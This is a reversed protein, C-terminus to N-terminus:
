KELLGITDAKCELLNQMADEEENRKQYEMIHWSFLGMLPPQLNIATNNLSRNSSEIGICIDMDNEVDSRIQIDTDNANTNTSMNTGSYADNDVNHDVFAEPIIRDNILM